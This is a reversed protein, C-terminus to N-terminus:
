AGVTVRITFWYYRDGWRKPFADELVAQNFVFPASEHDNKGEKDNYFVPRNAHRRSLEASALAVIVGQGFFREKPPM